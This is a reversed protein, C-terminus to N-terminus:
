VGKLVYKQVLALGVLILGVTTAGGRIAMGVVAGLHSSFFNRFDRNGKVAKAMNVLAYALAIVAVIIGVITLGIGWSLM